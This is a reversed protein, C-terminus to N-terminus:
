TVQGYARTASSDDCMRLGWACHGVTDQFLMQFLDSACRCLVSTVNYPCASFVYEQFTESRSEIM